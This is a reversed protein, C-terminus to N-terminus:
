SIVVRLINIRLEGAREPFGIFYHFLWSIKIYKKLM